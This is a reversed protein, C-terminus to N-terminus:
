EHILKHIANAVGDLFSALNKVLRSHIVDISIASAFITQFIENYCKKGMDKNVFLVFFDLEIILLVRIYVALAQHLKGSVM